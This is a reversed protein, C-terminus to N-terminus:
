PAPGARRAGGPQRERVLGRGVQGLGNRHRRQVVLERAAAGVRGRDAVEQGGIRRIHRGPIGAVAHGGKDLRARELTDACAQGGLAKVLRQPRGGGRLRPGSGPTEPRGGPGVGAGDEPM